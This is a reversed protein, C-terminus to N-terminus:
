VGLCPGDADQFLRAPRVATHRATTTHRPSHLAAPNTLPWHVAEHLRQKIDHQGGIDTFRTTPIDLTISRMSSPRVLPLAILLDAYTLQLATGDTSEVLPSTSVHTPAVATHNLSLAGLMDAVDRRTVRKMAVMAAERCLAKLDAGVYGHTVKAIEDLESESLQWGEGAARRMRALIDRRARENPIGIEVERDFRGPRRLAPDIADPRNTAALVVVRGEAGDEAPQSMGDMLTLLTAVLRKPLPDTTTDRRPCLSDIEDIFIVAPRTHVRRNSPAHSASNVKVSTAVSSRVAVSPSSALSPQQHSQM